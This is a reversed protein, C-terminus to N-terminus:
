YMGFNNNKSETKAKYLCKFMGTSLSFPQTRLIKSMAMDDEEGLVQIIATTKTRACGYKKAIDSDPFMKRFIPGAHDTVAIPLNHEVIFNTFLVEANICQLQSSGSMFSTIKQSQGAVSAKQKHSVSGVHKTCDNLGGHAVTFDLRCITCFAHSESVRSPVIVPYKVTYDKKFKQKVTKTPKRKKQTKEVDGAETATRKKSNDM